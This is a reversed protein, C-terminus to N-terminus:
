HSQPWRQDQTSSLNARRQSLTPGTNPRLQSIDECNIYRWRRRQKPQDSYANHVRFRRAFPSLGETTNEPTIM